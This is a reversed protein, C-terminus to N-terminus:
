QQFFQWAQQALNPGIQYYWHNHGEIVALDVAAGADALLKASAEVVGLPFSEDQDGIQILYRRNSGNSWGKCGAFAGAHIAIARVPLDTCQGLELAAIAGASHGYLSVNGQDFPTITMAQALVANLFATGDTEMRWMIPDLSEPAILVVGKAGISRWMDLMSAGSRKSGHLLLVASPLGGEAPYTQSSLMWFSRPKGNFIVEYRQLGDVLPEYDYRIQPLGAAPTQFRAVTLPGPTPPSIQQWVTQLGNQVQPLTLLALAFGAILGLQVLRVFASLM